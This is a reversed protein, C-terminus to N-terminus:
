PAPRLLRRGDELVRAGFSVYTRFDELTPLLVTRADLSASRCFYRLGFIQGVVYGASSGVAAGAMGFRGILAITTGICIAASLTSLWLAVQPRGLRLTFYTSVPSGLSLAFVGVLLIDFAPVLPVFAGGYLVRVLPGAAFFLVACLPLSILVNNRVCRATIAAARDLELSGIHPSAVTAATRTPLLLSEAGSVALSYLGLAAAPLYLAVIYLDARYNLLTVVYTLSVSWSFRAYESFGVRDGGTLRKRADIAVFTLTAAGAVNISVIWADIAAGASKHFLLLAAAVFCLTLLTQLTTIGSSFRVRKIGLVYGTGANLAALAPVVSLAPLASWRDASFFTIPILLLMAGLSWLASCGVVTWFFRRDPRRNLLYYSAASSLGGFASTVLAAEIGPLAYV